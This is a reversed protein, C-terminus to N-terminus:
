RLRVVFETIIAAAREPERQLILHPGAIKAVAMDPRVRLMEELCSPGVVRDRDAQVYLMPVAIRALEARRDCALVERLRAVMVRPQVSRVAERMSALLSSPAGRGVQLFRLVFDPMEIRFAIPGFVSCGVRLLGSAPSSAFGASLVVGMLNPPNTAAFQIALPTSFSEAVIVFGETAPVSSRVIDLLQEYSLFVDRPYRVVTTEFNEPLVRVLGAFLEGTGELGPMLVLKCVPALM